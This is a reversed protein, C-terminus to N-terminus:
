GEGKIKHAGEKGGESTRRVKRGDERRKIQTGKREKRGATELDM